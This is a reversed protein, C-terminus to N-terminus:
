SRMARPGPAPGGGGPGRRGRPGLRRRRAFLVNPGGKQSATGDITFAVMPIKAMMQVRDKDTGDYSVDMIEFLKKATKPHAQEYAAMFDSSETAELFRVTARYRKRGLWIAELGGACLNRYWDAAPGTGSACIWENGRHGAIEVVTRHLKHSRRGLHEIMLFRRAFLFGLRLRYFHTPLKFLQKQWGRPRHSLDFVPM